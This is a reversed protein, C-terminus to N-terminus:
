APTRTGTEPGASGPWAAPSGFCILCSILVCLSFHHMEDELEFLSVLNGGPLASYNRGAIITKNGCVIRHIGPEEGAFMEIGIAQFIDPIEIASQEGAKVQCRKFLVLLDERLFDGLDFGPLIFVRLDEDVGLHAAELAGLDHLRKKQKERM